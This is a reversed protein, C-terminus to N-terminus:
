ASCDVQSFISLTKIKKLVLKLFLIGFRPVIEIEYLLMIHFRSQGGHLM